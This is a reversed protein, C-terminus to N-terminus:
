LSSVLSIALVLPTLPFRSVLFRSWFSDLFYYLPSGRGSSLVNLTFLLCGSWVSNETILLMRM